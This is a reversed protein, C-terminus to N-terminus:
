HGQVFAKQFIRKKVHLGFDRDFSLKLKDVPIDTM